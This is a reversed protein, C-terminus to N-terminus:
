GLRTLASAVCREGLWLELLLSWPAEPEHGEPGLAVLVVSRPLLPLERSEEVEGPWHTALLQLLHARDEPTFDPLDWATQGAVQFM